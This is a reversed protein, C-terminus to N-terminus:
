PLNALANEARAVLEKARSLKAPDDVAAHSENGALVTAVSEEAARVSKRGEERVEGEWFARAANWRKQMRGLSYVLGLAAVTGAEYLTPALSSLYLVASVASAAGSTGLSEVVLRQALSQLAPVTEHQLYRRTFAIHGPWKPLSPPSGNVGAPSTESGSSHSGSPTEDSSRPQPYDRAADSLQAIRGTLYILEREATPLFRQNIMENTLLAVDDVRWFLKWWGLKRWRRSRFALDLEDQLEAHAQQAWDALHAQMAAAAPDSNRNPSKCLRQAEQLQIQQSTKSLISAILNRIAPKTEADQPAAGAKIWANLEPVRSSFWLREYDIAYQPSQRFLRIGQEALSVDVIKFDTELQLNSSGEIQVAASITSDAESIPLSSVDVAGRLGDGIVLAQHVPTALLSTRGPASPIEVAPVLIADELSQVSTEGPAPRSASLEMLLFELNHSDFQPSSVHIEDLGARHEFEISVAHKRSPGVRVVLPKSGDRDELQTEWPQIEQLPDALLARLIRRSTSTAASGNRLALIAIRVVEAGADQRLGRLALQSRSLNILNPVEKQLQLLAQELELRPHSTTTSLHRRRPGVKTPLQSESPTSAITLVNVCARCPTIAYHRYARGLVPRSQRGGSLLAPVPAM